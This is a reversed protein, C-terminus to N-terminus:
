YFLNIVVHFKGQQTCLSGMPPLFDTLLSLFNGRGCIVWQQLLEHYFLYLRHEFKTLGVNPVYFCLIGFIDLQICVSTFKSFFLPATWGWYRVEKSDQGRLLPAQCFNQAQSLLDSVRAIQMCWNLLTSSSIKNRNKRVYDLLCGLPMLQTILMVQATLCVCLIRVCSPHVVSAM